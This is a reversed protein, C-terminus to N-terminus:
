STEKESLRKIINVPQMGTSKYLWKVYTLRSRSIARKREIKGTLAFIAWLLGKAFCLGAHNFLCEFRSFSRSFKCVSSPQTRGPEWHVYYSTKNIFYFIFVKEVLFSVSMKNTFTEKQNDSSTQKCTNVSESLLQTAAPTQTNQYANDLSLSLINTM